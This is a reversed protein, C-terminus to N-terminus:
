TPGDEVAGSSGGVATAVEDSRLPGGAAPSLPPTAGGAGQEIGTLLEELVDDGRRSPEWGLEDRIRTTDLLPSRLVIDVWGPDAPQLRLRWTLDAAARLLGSAVPVPRAGLLRGLAQPDLVPEAAVNYAGQAADDLVARRFADACDASHVVQFRLNPHQPVLPLAARLLRNPVFPGLFLRRIEEAAARQLVLAPRLRVVRSSPHEAQYLDVLREAYAKARAYPSTAIGDTPWSEDVPQKPGPRYVALSSAHVITPVGAADCASLVRETGVVNARWLIEEDHSPQILWALHVLADTDRLAPVLDDSAVDAAVWSVGDALDAPRRRSIGVVEEVAPEARLAEVLHSGINGSAGTVAIRM